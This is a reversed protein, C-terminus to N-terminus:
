YTQFITAAFFGSIKLLETYEAAKKAPLRFIVNMAIGSFAKEKISALNTCKLNIKKLNELKYFAKKGIKEVSNGIIVSELKKCKTFANDGIATIKNGIKLSELKTLNNFATKSCETVYYKKKKIYVTSPVVLKNINANNCGLFKITDFGTIEYNLGGISITEGIHSWLAQKLTKKGVKVTELYRLSEFSTKPYETVEFERKDIEVKDPIKLNKVNIDTYGVFKLSTSSTIEYKFKKVKVKKGLASEHTVKGDYWKIEDFSMAEAFNTNVPSEGGYHRYYSDPFLVDSRIYAKDVDVDESEGKRLKRAVVIARYDNIEYSCTSLMILSDKENVDVPCYYLSRSEIQYLFDLFEGDSEFTGKLYNFNGNQSVTGAVRMFSIIKWKSNKYISDFTIVPHEKYFNIDKYNLLEYFMMKTSDMNHGHIVINKTPTEVNCNGDIYLSGNKDKNGEFDHKLYFDGGDIDQMVPYDIKTGPISLWGKIDSNYELLKSFKLLRGNSDKANRKYSNDLNLSFKDSEFGNSDNGSSDVSDESFSYYINRYQETVKRSHYPQLVLYYLLFLACGLFLFVSCIKIIKSLNKKSLFKM